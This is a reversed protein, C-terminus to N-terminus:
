PWQGAPHVARLLPKVRPRTVAQQHVALEPRAGVHVRFHERDSLDVLQRTGALNSQALMGSADILSLQFTQDNIFPRDSVWRALDFRGPDRAYSNRVVLLVQDIAAISRIINEEFALALNTTEKIAARETAAREQQVQLWIGGWILLLVCGLLLAQVLSRATWNRWWARMGATGDHTAGLWAHLARESMPRGFRWGQGIQCGADRLRIAVSETEVGEAVVSLGLERALSITARVIKWAEDDTECSAIFSRDIKLETFPLRLLSLLSSYGTGFDDLSLGIGKIRLRTLLEMALLPSAIFTTETIEAMLAGPSLGHQLLLAEIEEPLAPNALVLPSINVAVACSPHHRRWRRCAALADALICRTLPVILGSQEALPIFVDPGVPGRPAHRWRALAEFGVVERSTLTVQPQFATVILDHDLAESLEEVTPPVPCAHSSRVRSPLPNALLARLAALGVPKALAGAVRLGLETAYRISAARVRDDLRSIFIVVPDAPNAAILSLLSIGERERLSLDLIIVDYAHQAIRSSAEELSTASDAAFGFATMARTVILCQVPEDDVVLLRRVADIQTDM